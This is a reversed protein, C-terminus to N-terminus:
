RPRAGRHRAPVSPVVDAALGDFGGLAEDGGLQLAELVPYQPRALTSQRTFALQILPNERSEGRSRQGHLVGGGREGLEIRERREGFAGAREFPRRRGQARFRADRDLAAPMRHHFAERVRREHGVVQLEVGPAAHQDDGAGVHAALGGVHALGGEDHQQRVDAAVDRGVPATHPGSSRIKVRMPAASSRAPPREVNMTSIVSAALM